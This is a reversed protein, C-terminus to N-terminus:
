LEEFREGLDTSFGTGVGTGGLVPDPSYVGGETSATIVMDGLLPSTM